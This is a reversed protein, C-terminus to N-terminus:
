FNLMLDDFSSLIVDPRSLKDPNEFDEHVNDSDYRVKLTKWGLLGPMIFDKRENDAVYVFRRAEPFRSVFHRFNHPESKDHGSEESIIINDPHFYKEIGLARLKARQTVSRGDTILGIAVGRDSLKKLVEGVGERLKLSDPVHSRYEKVLSRLREESAGRESLWGELYEFYSERRELLSNMADFLGDADDGYENRLENEILRFGSRVFDRESFLTDDLDFVVVDGHYNFNTVVM